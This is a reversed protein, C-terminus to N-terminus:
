FFGALFVQTHRFFDQLTELFEPVSRRGTAVIYQVRGLARVSGDPRVETFGQKFNDIGFGYTSYNITKLGETAAHCVIAANPQEGELPCYTAALAQHLSDMATTSKQAM